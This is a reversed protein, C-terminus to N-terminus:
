KFLIKTKKLTNKIRELATIEISRIRPRTVDYMKSIEDITMDNGTRLGFRLRLIVKERPSMYGLYPKIFYKYLKIRMRKNYKIEEKLKKKEKYISNILQKIQVYSMKKLQEVNKIGEM